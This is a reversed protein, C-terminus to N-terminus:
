VHARGIQFNVKVPKGENQTTLDIISGRRRFVTDTKALRKTDNPMGQFFNSVKHVFAFPGTPFIDSQVSEFSEGVCLCYLM